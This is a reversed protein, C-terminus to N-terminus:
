EETSVVTYQAAIEQLEENISAEDMDELNPHAQNTISSVQASIDLGLKRHGMEKAIDELIGRLMQTTQLKQEETSGNFLKPKHYYYLTTLEQIRKAPHVLGMKPMSAFFEDRYRELRDSWEDDPDACRSKYHMVSPTTIRVGYTADLQEVIERPQHFQALLRIVFNQQEPNLKHKGTDSSQGADNTSKAQGNSHSM